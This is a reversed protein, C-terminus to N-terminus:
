HCGKTLVAGRWVLVQEKTKRFRCNMNPKREWTVDMACNIPYSVQDFGHLCSEEKRRKGKEKEEKEREEEKKKKFQINPINTM